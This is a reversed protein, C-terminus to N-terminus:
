GSILPPESFSLIDGEEAGVVMCARMITSLIAVLTNLNITGKWTPQEENNYQALMVVIAILAAIAVSLSTSEIWWAALTAIRCPKDRIKAHNTPCDGHRHEHLFARTEGPESFGVFDGANQGEHDEAHLQGDEIPAQTLKTQTSTLVSPARERSVCEKTTAHM